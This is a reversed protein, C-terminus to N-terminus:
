MGMKFPSKRYPTPKPKPMPKISAPKPELKIKYKEFTSKVHDATVEEGVENLLAELVGIYHEDCVLEEEYSYSRSIGTKTCFTCNEM